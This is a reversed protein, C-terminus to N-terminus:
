TSEVARLRKVMAISAPKASQPNQGTILQGDVVVHEEWPPRQVYNAGRETLKDQLLFPVVKDLQVAVEEKNSFGTVQKGKLLYSGDALTANVLAAQGHCVAVVLNGAEHITAIAHQVAPDDPFDWMAGHGGAFFIGQYRTIDMDGLAPLADLMRRVEADALFRRNDPDSEDRSLPDIVAEGGRTSAIDVDVGSDHLMFYPHALESLWFGTSEGTDGLQGHSTVVLLVRSQYYRLELDAAAM